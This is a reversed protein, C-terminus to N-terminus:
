GEHDLQTQSARSHLVLGIKAMPGRALQQDLELVLAIPHSPSPTIGPLESFESFLVLRSGLHISPISWPTWYDGTHSSAAQWTPSSPGALANSNHPLPRSCLRMLYLIPVIRKVKLLRTMCRVIWIIRYRDDCLVYFSRCLGVSLWQCHEPSITTVRLIVRPTIYMAPLYNKSCLDFRRESTGLMCSRAQFLTKYLMRPRLLM